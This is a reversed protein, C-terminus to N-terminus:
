SAAGSPDAEPPEQCETPAVDRAEAAEARDVEIEEDFEPGGRRRDLGIRAQREDLEDSSIPAVEAAARDRELEQPEVTAGERAQTSGSAGEAQDDDPM